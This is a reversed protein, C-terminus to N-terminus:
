IQFVPCERCHDPNRAATALLKERFARTSPHHWVDQLFDRCQTVDIGEHWEGEDETFSCPFFNGEVNIYTSFLTSECAEALTQFAVRRPDDRVLALFKPATCSDFGIPLQRALADKVLAHFKEPMIPTFASGRGKRKLSLLIIAHTSRLRTDRPLADFLRKVDEHTEECLLQHINVQGVGSAALLEVANFCVDDDYHSVAVAGCLSAFRQAQDKTLNWGNITVNPVVRNHDNTRCYEFMRWLDPNSDIDGIGFAIQTLNPPMKDFIARFSEFTMNQGKASNAKYCWPCPQGKIGHCITSVELDLIEPGLPSFYPDESITNGWRAFAGNVYNFITNYGPTAVFRLKGQWQRPNIKLVKEFDEPFKAGKRLPSENM